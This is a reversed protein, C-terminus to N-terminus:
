IWADQWSFTFQANSSGITVSDGLVIDNQGPYLKLWGSTKDLDALKNVGAQNKITRRFVDIEYYGGDPITIGSKFKINNFPAPANDNWISINSMGGFIRITPYTNYNGINILRTYEAQSYPNDYRISLKDMYLNYANLGESRIELVARSANMPSVGTVSYSWLNVANKVSVMTGAAIGVIAGNGDLFFLFPTVGIGFIGATRTLRLDGSITIAAGPKINYADKWVKKVSGLSGDPNYGGFTSSSTLKLSHTGDTAWDTSIASAVVGSSNYLRYNNIASAYEFGAAPNLEPNDMVVLSTLYKKKARYFRPDAARLTIQWERFHKFNITSVDEEKTLSASKRCNIYHDKEGDGTLFYLPKEQMNVFATRLSEEMDRLKELSYAEVRVKLVITRGSYYSGYADEGDEGPRDERTDRVDSDALGDIALVRFKDYVTLDNMVLNNYSLVAEVGRPVAFGSGTISLNPDGKWKNDEENPYLVHNIPSM